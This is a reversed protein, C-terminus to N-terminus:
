SGHELLVDSTKRAVGHVRQAPYPQAEDQAFIEHELMEFGASELWGRLCPVNPVYWCSFDGKYLGSYFVSLPMSSNAIAKVDIDTNTTGDPNPLYNHIVEGEFHLRGDAKIVQNIEEFVAVPNKLHYFVGLYLVIDFAGKEGILSSLRYVSDHIFEAKSGLIERSVNFGTNSPDQIDIATVKAGRREMEFTYSGDVAGIDLACCGSLDRPIGLWDLANRPHVDITGPTFVGPVIEYRHYWGVSNVKSIVEDKDM